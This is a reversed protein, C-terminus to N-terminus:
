KYKDFFKSIQEAFKGMDGNPIYAAFKDRANGSM